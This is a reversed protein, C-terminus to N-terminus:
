RGLPEQDPNKPFSSWILYNLPPVSMTPLMHQCMWLHEGGEGYWLADTPSSSHCQRYAWTRSSQYWLLSLCSMMPSSHHLQNAPIGNTLFHSLCSGTSSNWWLKCENAYNVNSPLSSKAIVDYTLVAFFFNLRLKTKSLLHFVLLVWSVQKPRCPCVIACTACLAHCTTQAARQLTTCCKTQNHRYLV